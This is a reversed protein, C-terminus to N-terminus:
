QRPPLPHATLQGYSVMESAGIPAVQTEDAVLLRRDLHAFGGDAAAHAILHALLAAVQAEDELALLLGRSVGLKGAPLVWAEPQSTNLLALEFALGRADSLAVLEHGLEALARALQAELRAEGAFIQRAAAFTEEGLQVAEAASVAEGASAAAQSLPTQACGGSLWLLIPAVLLLRAPM